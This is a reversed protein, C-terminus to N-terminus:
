KGSGPQWIVGTRIFFGFFNASLNMAGASKYWAEAFLDLPATIRYRGKLFLMPNTGQNILFHDMNTLAIGANWKHEAPRLNYGLHYVMNWNEHLNNDSEIGYESAAKRTIHYTRFETGLQWTFHPRAQGAIIGWNYEHIPESFRNYLFFARSEFRFTRITFAWGPSLSVGSFLTSGSGAADLQLGGELIFNNLRYGGLVAAKLYGGESVATSGADLYPVIKVQAELGNQAVCLM